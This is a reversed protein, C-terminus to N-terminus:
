AFYNESLLAELKLPFGVVRLSSFGVDIGETRRQEAWREIGARYQGALYNWFVGYVAAVAFIAAVTMLGCKQQRSM